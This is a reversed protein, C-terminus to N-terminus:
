VTIHRNWVEIIPALINSIYHTVELEQGINIKGKIDRTYFAQKAYIEGKANTAILHLAEKLTPSEVGSPTLRSDSTVSVWVENILIVSTAGTREIDAALSRIALHKEVRNSMELGIIDKHGDPFGLLAIPIHHGDTVLINKAGEFLIDAEDRLSKTKISNSSHQSRDAYHKRVENDDLTKVPFYTPRLIQNSSIDAWITRDWEQNRMCDPYQSKGPNQRIYWPCSFLNDMYVLNDHTDLILDSLVVFAHSLAELLECEKFQEDVWRREARLLGVKTDVQTPMKNVFEKVFYETEIFPSIEIELYPPVFWTEVVALRLNSYTSLDGEKVIFNRASTLWRMVKDNRLREQWKDYWKEFNSFESKTRQLVFTVNRMTQICNNLSLRFSNPEFYDDKITQWLNLCDSLRREPVRLPCLILNDKAM